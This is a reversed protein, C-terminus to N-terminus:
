KLRVDMENNKVVWCTSDCESRSYKKFFVGDIAYIINNGKFYKAKVYYHYNLPLIIEYYEKDVTDKYLLYTTDNYKGEYIWIPVKKNENNITLKITMIEEYPETTLCNLESCDSDSYKCSYLLLIIINITLINKVM